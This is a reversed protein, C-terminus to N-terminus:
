AAEGDIVPEALQTHGTALHLDAVKNHIVPEINSALSDAMQRETHARAFHNNRSIPV